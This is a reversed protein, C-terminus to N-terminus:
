DQCETILKNYEDLIRIITSDPLDQNIGKIKIKEANKQSLHYCRELEWNRKYSNIYKIAEEYCNCVEKALKNPSSINCSHITVSFIFIIRITFRKVVQNYYQSIYYNEKRV